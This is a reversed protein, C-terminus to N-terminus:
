LYKEFAKAMDLVTTEWPIYDQGTVRTAKSGDYVVDGSFSYDPQYGKGPTGEQIVNRREPYARRLIDAAAQPPAYAAAAIYREGKVKDPHEVAYVFIRAVDRVDVYGYFVGPIGVKDLPEGAFVQWVFKVTGSLNEPKEPFVLPPGAVFVPNVAAMAFHPKHEEGFAWFAKEGAAKSAAYIAPSPTDKGKEAVLKEPTDSWDAETFVHPKPAAPDRVAAISSMHIFAKVRPETIAAELARKVGNVAGDMVPEPDTFSLSIPAALHAVADVGKIAEAFAGELTIDPVEVIELQNSYASLAETLATTSSKSRATGRVSYGAKLFAEATRAAIFGNIGTVLVTGKSSM